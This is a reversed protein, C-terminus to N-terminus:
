ERLLGLLERCEERCNECLREHAEARALAEPMSKGAARLEAYQAMIELFQDCDIEDAHTEALALLLARLQREHLPM